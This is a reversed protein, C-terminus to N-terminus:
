RRREATRCHRAVVPVGAAMMRQRAAIKDGMSGDHRSDPRHLHHRRRAVAYLNRMKPCFATVPISPTPKANQPWKRHYPRHEPLKRAVRGRRHLLSRRCVDSGQRVTPRLFYPGRYASGNRPVLAHGACRNRGRNAIM